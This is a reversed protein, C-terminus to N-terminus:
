AKTFHLTGTDMGISGRGGPTFSSASPAEVWYTAQGSLGPPCSPPPTVVQRTHDSGWCSVLPCGLEREREGAQGGEQVEWAVGEEMVRLGRLPRELCM